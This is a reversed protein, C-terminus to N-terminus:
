ALLVLLERLHDRKQVPFIKKRGYLISITLVKDTFLIVNVTLIYMSYYSDICFLFSKRHQEFTNRETSWNGEFEESFNFFLKYVQAEPRNPHNPAWVRASHM